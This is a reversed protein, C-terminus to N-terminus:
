RRRIRARHRAADEHCETDCRRRQIGRAKSKAGFRQRAGANGQQIELFVAIPQQRSVHAIHNRAMAAVARHLENRGRRFRHQSGLNRPQEPMTQEVADVDGITRGIQRCKRVRRAAALRAANFKTEPAFRRAAALVARGIEDPDFHPAPREFLRRFRRHFRFGLDDGHHAVDGVPFKLFLRQIQRAGGGLLRVRGLAAEEGGHAVFQARREIGDDSKRFHDDLFVHQHEIGRAALFVRLQDIIGALM